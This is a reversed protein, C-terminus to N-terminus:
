RPTLGQSVNSLPAFPDPRGASEPTVATSIDVLANFREDEFISAEFSAPLASMLSQFQTQAQSETLDSTITPEVSSGTFFYWYAGAAVVLAVIILTTTSNTKM